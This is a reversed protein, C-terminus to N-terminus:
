NKKQWRALVGGGVMLGALLWFVGSAGVAAGIVGFAM